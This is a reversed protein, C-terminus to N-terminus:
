KDQIRETKFIKDMYYGLGYNCNFHKHHEKHFLDIFNILNSHTMLSNAIIIFTWILHIQLNTNIIPLYIPIINGFYLDFWHLYLAEMAVPEKYIHHLKHSWKYIQPLHMTRHCIYFYLDILIIGFLIKFLSYFLGLEQYSVFYYEYPIAILPIYIFSNKLVLPYIKKYQLMKKENNEKSFMDYLLISGGVSYFTFLFTLYIYM